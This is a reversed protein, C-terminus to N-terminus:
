AKFIIARYSFVMLPALLYFQMEVGLTWFVGSLSYSHEFQMM